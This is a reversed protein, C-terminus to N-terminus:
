RLGFDYTAAFYSVLVAFHREIILRAGRQRTQQSLRRYGLGGGPARM